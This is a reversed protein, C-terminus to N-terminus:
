GKAKRRLVEVNCTWEHIGDEMSCNCIGCDICGEEAGDPESLTPIGHGSGGCTTCVQKTVEHYADRLQAITELSIPQGYLNIEELVKRTAEILKNM